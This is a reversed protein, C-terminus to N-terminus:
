VKMMAKKKRKTGRPSSFKVEGTSVKKKGEIVEYGDLKKDNDKYVIKDDVIKLKYHFDLKHGTQVEKGNRDQGFSSRVVIKDLLGDLFDKQKKPSNREFDVQEGYKSVWDLWKLEKHLTDIDNETKSYEDQLSTLEETYRQIIKRVITEERNGLGVEVEIDVISNEVNEITKQIRQCKQELKKEEDKINKQKTFKAELVDLKFREKLINSNKVVQVVNDLVYENTMDM